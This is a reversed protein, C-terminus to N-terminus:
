PYFAVTYEKMEEGTYIFKASFFRGKKIWPLFVHDSRWRPPAVVRRTQSGNLYGEENEQLEGNFEQVTFIFM